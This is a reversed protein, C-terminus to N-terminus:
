GVLSSINNWASVMMIEFPAIVPSQILDLDAFFLTKIGFLLSQSFTRSNLKGFIDCRVYTLYLFFKLFSLELQIHYLIM